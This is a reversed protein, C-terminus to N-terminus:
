MGACALEPDMRRLVPQPLEVEPSLAGSFLASGHITGGKRAQEVVEAVLADVVEPRADMAHRLLTGPLAALPNAYFSFKALRRFWSRVSPREAGRGRYRTYMLVPVILPRKRFYILIADLILYLYTASSPTMTLLWLAAYTVGIVRTIGSGMVLAIPAILMLGILTSGLEELVGPSDSRVTHSPMQTSKRLQRPRSTM